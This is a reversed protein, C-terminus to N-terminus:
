ANERLDVTNLKDRTLRRYEASVQGRERHALYLALRSLVFLGWASYAGYIFYQGSQNTYFNAPPNVLRDAALALHLLASGAYTEEPTHLTLTNIMMRLEALAAIVGEDSLQTQAPVSHTSVFLRDLAPLFALAVAFIILHRVLNRRLQVNNKAIQMLEENEIDHSIKDYEMTLVEKDTEKPMLRIAAKDGDKWVARGKAVLQKARRPFTAIGETGHEDFVRIKGEM